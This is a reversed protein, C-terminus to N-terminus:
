SLIDHSGQVKRMSDRVIFGLTKRVGWTSWLFRAPVGRRGLLDKWFYLKRANFYYRNGLDRM